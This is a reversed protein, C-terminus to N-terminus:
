GTGSERFAIEHKNQIAPVTSDSNTWFGIPIQGQPVPSM